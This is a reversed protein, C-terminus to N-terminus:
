EKLVGIYPLNRYKKDHDFGYGVVFLDDVEFGLYDISIPHKNRSPKFLLAAIKISKPKCPKIKELLYKMTFGSDIIDEVIIIDRGKLNFDNFDQKCTIKGQSSTQGGYSSLMIFEMSIPLDIKRILDSCFMFAGNLVCVVTIEKGKFDEAIEQAIREIQQNIQKQSFLIETSAM